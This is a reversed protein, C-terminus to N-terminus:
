PAPQRAAAGVPEDRTPAASARRGSLLTEVEPVSRLALAQRAVERADDLQTARIASKVELLQGPAVSLARLGLGLLLETNAPDGAMEGYTSFHRAIRRIRLEQEPEAKARQADSGALQELHLARDPRGPQVVRPLHGALRQREPGDPLDLREQATPVGACSRHPVLGDPGRRPLRRWSRALPVGRRRIQPERDHHRAHGDRKADDISQAIAAAVKTCKTCRLPRM